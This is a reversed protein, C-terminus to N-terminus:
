FFIYIQYFNHINKYWLKNITYHTYKDNDNNILKDDIFYLIRDCINDYTYTKCIGNKKDNIYEIECLLIDKFDFIKYKGDKIGNNHFYEEILGDSRIYNRIIGCSM